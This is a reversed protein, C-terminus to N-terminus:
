IGYNLNVWLLDEQHEFWIRGIKEIERNESAFAYEYKHSIEYWRCAAVVKLLLFLGFHQQHNLKTLDLLIKFQPAKKIDWVMARCQEKLIFSSSNVSSSCALRMHDRLIQSPWPESTLATSPVSAQFRISGLFSCPLQSSALQILFFSIVWRLVWGTSLTLIQLDKQNIYCFVWAYLCKGYISLSEVQGWVKWPKEWVHPFTHVGTTHVLRWGVQM